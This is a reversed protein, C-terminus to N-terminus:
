WGVTNNDANVERLCRMMDLQYEAGVDAGGEEESGRSQWLACV